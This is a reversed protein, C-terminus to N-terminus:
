ASSALLVGVLEDDYELPCPLPFDKEGQVPFLFNRMFFSPAASIRIAHTRMTRRGCIKLLVYLADELAEEAIRAPVLVAGITVCTAV